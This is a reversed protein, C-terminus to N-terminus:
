SMLPQHESSSVGPTMSRIARPSSLAKLITIRALGFYCTHKDPESFANKGYIPIDEGTLPFGAGNALISGDRSRV